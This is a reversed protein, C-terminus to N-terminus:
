SPSGKKSDIFTKPLVERVMGGRVEKLHQELREVEGEYRARIDALRREHSDILQARDKKNIKDRQELKEKMLRNLYYLQQRKDKEMQTLHESYEDVTKEYLQQLQSERHRFREEMNSRTKLLADHYGERQTLVADQYNSKVEYLHDEHYNQELQAKARAAREVARVRQDARTQLLYKQKKQLEESQTIAEMVRAKENVGNERHSRHSDIMEKEHKGQLNLIKEQADKQFSEAMEQKQRELSELEERSSALQGKQDIQTLRHELLAKALTERGEKLSEEKQNSIKKNTKDVVDKVYKNRVKETKRVEDDMRRRFEQKLENRYAAVASRNAEESRSRREEQENYKKKFDERAQDQDRNFKLKETKLRSVFGTKEDSLELDKQALRENVTDQLRAKDKETKENLRNRYTNIAENQTKEQREQNDLMILDKEGLAERFLNERHQAQHNSVLKQQQLEGKLTDEIGKKEEAEKQMKKSLNDLYFARMQDIDKTHKDNNRSLINDYDKRMVNIKDEYKSQQAKIEEEFKKTLTKIEHSQSKAEEEKKKKYEERLKGIEDSKEKRDLGSIMSM